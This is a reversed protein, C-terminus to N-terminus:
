RSYAHGGREVRPPRDRFPWIGAPCATRVLLASRGSLFGATTLVLGAVIALGRTANPVDRLLAARLGSRIGQCLVQRVYAREVRTSKGLGNLVALAAKGSGENFCRRLFYPLTARGAPVRHLVAAAPDYMWVGGVHAESARLCLDTDEPRSREGVKGFDTRFGAVLDFAVRRIAMGNTWVNRVPEANAPMGRYSTGVAWDFEPPFWRPRGTDWCPDLRGGAGVVDPRSFHRLLTALWTPTAIADDDLFAVVDSQCCAVGTNRTASAGPRGANPVVTVDAFEARAAALLEPHHDIVVVTRLVPVTQIRVSAVAARLDGWRKMTYAAIVVSVTPLPFGSQQAGTM